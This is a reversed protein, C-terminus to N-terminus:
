KAREVIMIVMVRKRIARARYTMPLVAESLGGFLISTVIMAQAAKRMKRM